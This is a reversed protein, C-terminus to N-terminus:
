KVHRQSESLASVYKRATAHLRLIQGGWVILPVGIFLPSTQLLIEREGILFFFYVVSCALVAILIVGVLFRWKALEMNVRFLDSRDIEFNVLVTADDEPTM